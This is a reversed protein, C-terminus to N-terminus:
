VCKISNAKLANTIDTNYRINLFAIFLNFVDHRNYVKDWPEIVILTLLLM